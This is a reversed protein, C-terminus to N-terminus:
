NPSTKASYARQSIKLFSVQFDIRHTEHIFEEPPVKDVFELASEIAIKQLPGKVIVHFKTTKDTEPNQM